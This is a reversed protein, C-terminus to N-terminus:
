TLLGMGAFAITQYVQFEKYQAEAPPVPPTADPDYEPLQENTDKDLLKPVTSERGTGNDWTRWIYTQNGFQAPSKWVRYYGECRVRKWWAKDPTTRWPKRAAIKVTLEWYVMEGKKALTANIEDVRLTGPNFGYFFDSNVRDIYGYFSAPDFTVINKQFVGVLDSVTRTVGQIREQTIINAIATMPGPEPFEENWAEDIGEESKLTTWTIRVPLETPVGGGEQETDFIASEYSVVATYYIVSVKTIEVGIAFLSPNSPHEDNPKPLPNTANAQAGVRVTESTETTGADLLITYGLTATLKVLGDDETSSGSSDGEIDRQVDYTTM